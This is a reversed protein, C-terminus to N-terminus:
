LTTIDKKKGPASERGGTEEKCVKKEKFYSIKRGKEKKMSGRRRGGPTNGM